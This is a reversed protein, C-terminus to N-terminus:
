SKPPPGVTSGAIWAATLNLSLTDEAEHRPERVWKAMGRALAELPHEFHSPAPEVWDIAEDSSLCIISVDSPINKGRSKLLRDMCLYEVWDLCIWATPHFASDTRQFLRRLDKPSHEASEPTNFRERYRFGRNALVSRFRQSINRSFTPVRGCLPFSIREHGADLLVGLAHELMDGTSVGIVPVDVGETSGGCFLIRLNGRTAWRALAGNGLIAIVADPDEMAVLRDWAKTRITNGGM